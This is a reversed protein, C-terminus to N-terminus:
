SVAFDSNPNEADLEESESAGVGSMESFRM